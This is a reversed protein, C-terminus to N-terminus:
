STPQYFILIITENGSHNYIINIYTTQVLAFVEFTM